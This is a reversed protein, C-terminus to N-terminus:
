EDDEAKEGAKLEHRRILQFLHSRDIKGERSAKAVNGDTQALWHEVFSREFRSLVASRGDRYPRRAMRTIFADESLDSIADGDPFLSDTPVEGMALTAEVVNRLERVNGPWHYTSLREIDEPDFPSAEGGDYGAERLFHEILLPLDETRDRLPPLQLTVVALRYYLDLRFTGQNVEARLDRNTAAVLRVDTQIAQNGGVRQFQKRELAGLLAPQLDRPLEGVEDLFLTGGNARELAGIRQQSAGTFAGREHGFLESAVLNPAMAGCDVTVFPGDARPSLTHLARSVLEKGTGSEGVLLCSAQSGSLREVRAMLRRMEPSSGWLDALHDDAHMEVVAPAGDSVQILSKGLRLMSDPPVVAASIRVAGAYTGNTSGTDHVEIGERHRALELHFRSVTPDDLVLTNREASGVSLRDADVPSSSAGPGDVVQVRVTSVARDVGSAAHPLTEKVAVLGSRVRGTMLRCRGGVVRRNAAPSGHRGVRRVTGPFRSDPGRGARVLTGGRPEEREPELQCQGRSWEHQNREGDKRRDHQVLERQVLSSSVALNSEQDSTVYGGTKGITNPASFVVKSTDTIQEQIRRDFRFRGLREDRM